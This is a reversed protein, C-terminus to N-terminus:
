AEEKSESDLVKFTSFATYGTGYGASNFGVYRVGYGYGGGYGHGCAFIAHLKGRSVKAM